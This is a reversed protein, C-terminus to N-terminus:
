ATYLSKQSAGKAAELIWGKLAMAELYDKLSDLEQINFLFIRCIRDKEKM